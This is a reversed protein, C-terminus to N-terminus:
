AKWMELQAEHFFDEGKKARKSSDELNFRAFELKRVLGDKESKLKNMKQVHIM